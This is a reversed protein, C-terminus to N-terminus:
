VSLAFDPIAYSRPRSRAAGAACPTGFPRVPRTLPLLLRQFRAGSRHPAAQHTGAATDHASNWCVAWSRDVFSRIARAHHVVFEIGLQGRNDTIGAFIVLMSLTRLRVAAESATYSCPQRKRSPERRAETGTAEDACATATAASATAAHPSSASRCRRISKRGSRTRSVSCDLSCAATVPRSTSRARRTAAAARAAPSVSPGSISTPTGRETWSSSIATSASSM